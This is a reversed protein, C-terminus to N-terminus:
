RLHEPPHRLFFQRDILLAREMGGRWVRDGFYSRIQNASKVGLGVPERCQNCAHESMCPRTATIHEGLRGEGLLDRHNFM